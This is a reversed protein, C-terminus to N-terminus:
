FGEFSSFCMLIGSQLTVSFCFNTIQFTTQSDRTRLSLYVALRSQLILIVVFNDVSHKQLNLFFLFIKEQTVNQQIRILLKELTLIGFNNWISCESDLWLCNNQFNIFQIFSQILRLFEKTKFKFNTLSLSLIGFWYHIVFGWILEGIIPIHNISVYTTVEKFIVKEFDM